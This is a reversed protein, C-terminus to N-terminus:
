LIDSLKYEVKLRGVHNDIANIANQLTTILNNRRDEPIDDRNMYLELSRQYGEKKDQLNIISEAARNAAMRDASIRNIAEIDMFEKEERDDVPLEDQEQEDSILQNEHPIIYFQLACFLLPSLLLLVIVIIIVANM